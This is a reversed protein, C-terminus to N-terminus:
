MGPRLLEKLNQILQQFFKWFVQLRHVSLQSWNMQSWEDSVVVNSVQDNSVVNM